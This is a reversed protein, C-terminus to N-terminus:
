ELTNYDKYDVNSADFMERAATYEKTDHYKDDLYIIEKVGLQIIIKACENCPMLTTYLRSGELMNFNNANLIANLEAHCVYLYKEPRSWPFKDDSCGRPMGNYGTGIIKNDSGVVCAGVQTSPDKSRQASIKAIKMFYKNWTIYDERKSM